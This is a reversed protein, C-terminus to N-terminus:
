SSDDSDEMVLSFEDIDIWRDSQSDFVDWNNCKQHIIGCRPLKISKRYGQTLGSRRISKRGRIEM